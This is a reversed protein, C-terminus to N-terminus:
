VHMHQHHVGSSRVPGGRFRVWIYFILACLYCVFALSGLLNLRTERRYRVFERPQEGAPQRRKTLMGQEADPPTNYAAARYIRGGPGAAAKDGEDALPDACAHM